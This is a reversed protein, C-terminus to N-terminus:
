ILFPTFPIKKNDPINHMNHQELIPVVNRRYEPNTRVRFNIYVTKEKYTTINNPIYKMLTDLNGHKWMSNAIGIPLTVLKPHEICTNQAYWKDLKSENLFSVYKETINTDSNHTILCISHDFKPFWFDIFYEIFKAHTYVIHASLIINIHVTDKTNYLFYKTNDIIDNKNFTDILCVEAIKQLREGTIIDEKNFIM